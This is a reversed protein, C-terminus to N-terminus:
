EVPKLKVPKALLQIRPTGTADTVQAGPGRSVNVKFSLFRLFRLLETNSRKFDEGFDNYSIEQYDSIHCLLAISYYLMKEKGEKTVKYSGDRSQECFTSLLFFSVGKPEQFLFLIKLVKFKNFLNIIPKPPKSNFQISVSLTDFFRFPNNHM